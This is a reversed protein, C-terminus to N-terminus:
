DKVFNVFRMQVTISLDVNVYFSTKFLRKEFFNRSGRKTTLMCLNMVGRGLSTHCLFLLPCM